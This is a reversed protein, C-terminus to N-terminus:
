RFFVNLCELFSLISVEKLSIFGDGNNDIYEFFKRIDFGKEKKLKQRLAEIIAENELYLLLLRKFIKQTQEEFM